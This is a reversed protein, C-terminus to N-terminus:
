FPTSHLHHWVDIYPSAKKHSNVTLYNVDHQAIAFTVILMTAWKSYHMSVVYYPPPPHSGQVTL